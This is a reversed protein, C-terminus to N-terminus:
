EPLARSRLRALIKKITMYIGLMAILALIFIYVVWKAVTVSSALTVLHELQAPYSFLLTLLLANELLDLGSRVVPLLNLLLWQNAFGSGRLLLTTLLSLLCMYVLAFIVDLGLLQAYGIRGAAGIDEFMSYVLTPSYGGSLMDLMGVGNSIARLHISGFPCVEMTGTILIFLVLAVIFNRVNTYQVIRNSLTKITQM